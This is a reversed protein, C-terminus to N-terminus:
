ATVTGAEAEALDVDVFDIDDSAWDPYSGLSFILFGCFVSALTGTILFPAYNGFADFSAGAALPGISSALAIMGAIFGFIKGFNRLGGYRATLYGCLHIKTGAAYGSIMMAVVVLLPNHVQTLLLPYAIGTSAITIGGVWRAHFRDLM